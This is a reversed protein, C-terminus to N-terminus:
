RWIGDQDVYFGNVSTDRALACSEPYFYYWFGDIQCWGTVLEGNSDAFYDKGDRKIWGTFLAGMLSNGVTNLYYQRGNQTLWGTYMSGDENFFYYHAGIVKWGDDAMIGADAGVEQGTDFYYWQGDILAWGVAMPGTPYLYYWDNGLRQWGTRMRGEVDFYYRQGDISEWQGRCLEGSPYRYSWIQEDEIWGVAEQNQRIVTSDKAQQGKGDSVYRDTIKLEGSEIWGSKTGHSTRNDSGPITRVKFTYEGEQIMYPYFNYQIASTQSVKFVSKQGRFLQVEYHGSTNEPKEWRAEGLNKENWYADPPPDFNGKVPKLRLTVALNDGDRRASVFTGGSIKVNSAKYSALFYSESVELPELTVKLRPEDGATVAKRGTELWEAGIIEYKSDGAGVLVQGKSASGSGIELDPLSVGAEAGSSVRVSITNIPRAAAWSTVPVAALLLVGMVLAATKEGAKKNM